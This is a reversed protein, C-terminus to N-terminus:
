KEGQAYRASFEVTNQFPQQGMNGVGSARMGAADLTNQSGKQEAQQQHQPRINVM